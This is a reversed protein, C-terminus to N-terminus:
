DDRTQDADAPTTAPSRASLTGPASPPPRGILGAADVHNVRVTFYPMVLRRHISSNLKAKHIQSLFLPILDEESDRCSSEIGVGTFHIM